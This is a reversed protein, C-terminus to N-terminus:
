KARSGKGKGSKPTPLPPFPDEAREAEADPPNGEGGTPGTPPVPAPAPTPAAPAPPPPAPPSANTERRCLYLLSKMVALTRPQAGDFTKQWLTSGRNALGEPPNAKGYTVAAAAYLNANVSSDPSDSAYGYLAHICCVYLKYLRLEGSKAVEWDENKVKNDRKGLKSQISRLYTILTTFNTVSTPLRGVDVFEDPSIMFEQKASELLNLVDPSFPGVGGGRAIHSKVQSVLTTNVSM